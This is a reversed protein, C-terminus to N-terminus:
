TISWSSSGRTDDKVSNYAPPPIELHIENMDRQVIQAPDSACSEFRRYVPLTCFDETSRHSSVHAPPYPYNCEHEFGEPKPYTGHKLLCQTIVLLIAVLILISIILLIITDDLHGGM